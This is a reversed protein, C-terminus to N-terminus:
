ILKQNLEQLRTMYKKNEQLIIDQQKVKIELDKEKKRMVTSM